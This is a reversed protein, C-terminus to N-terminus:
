ISAPQAVTGAADSKASIIRVLATAVPEDPRIQLVRQLSTQALASQGAILHHYATLFSLTMDQEGSADLLQLGRLDHKYRLADGYVSEVQQATWLRGLKIAEYADFASERLQGSRLHILSRFQRLDSNNPAAELLQDVILKAEHNNGLRFAQLAAATREAASPQTPATQAMPEAPRQPAGTPVPQPLPTSVIQQPVATRHVVTPTVIRYTPQVSPVARGYSPAPAPSRHYSGHSSPCGGGASAVSAYLCIACVTPFSLLRFM